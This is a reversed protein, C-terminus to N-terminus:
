SRGDGPAPDSSERRNKVAERIRRSITRIHFVSGLFLATLLQWILMGSGPDAYLFVLLNTGSTQIDLV